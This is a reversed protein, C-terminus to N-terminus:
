RVYTHESKKKKKKSLHFTNSQKVAFHGVNDSETDLNTLVASCFTLVRLRACKICHVVVHHQIDLLLEKQVPLSYKNLICMM